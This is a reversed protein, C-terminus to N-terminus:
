KSSKAGDQMLMPNTTEEVPEAAVAGKGKGSAETFKQDSETNSM